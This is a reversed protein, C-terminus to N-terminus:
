SWRVLRLPEKPGKCRRRRASGKRWTRRTPDRRNEGRPSPVGTLGPPGPRGLTAVRDRGAGWPGPRAGSVRACLYVRWAPDWSGLLSPRSGPGRPGRCRVLYRSAPPRSGLAPDPSWGDRPASPTQSPQEFCGSEEEKRERSTVWFTRPGVGPKRREGM